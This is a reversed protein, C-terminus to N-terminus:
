RMDAGVKDLNIQITVAGELTNTITGMNIPEEQFCIIMISTAFCSDAHSIAPAQSHQMAAACTPWDAGLGLTITARVFFLCLLKLRKRILLRM